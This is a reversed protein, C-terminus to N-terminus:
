ILKPVCFLGSSPPVPKKADAVKARSERIAMLRKLASHFSKNAAEEGRGIRDLERATRSSTPCMSLYNWMATDLRRYQDQRWASHALMDVLFREELTAPAFERHFDDHLTQLGADAAPMIKLPM